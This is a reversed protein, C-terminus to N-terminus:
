VLEKIDPKVSELWTIVKTLDLDDKFKVGNYIKTSMEFINIHKKIIASLIEKLLKFTM